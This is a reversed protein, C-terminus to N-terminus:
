GREQRRRRRAAPGRESSAPIGPERRESMAALTSRGEKLKPLVLAAVAKGKEITNEATIGAGTLVIVAAHHKGDLM